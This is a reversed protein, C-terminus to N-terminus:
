SSMVFRKPVAVNLRHMFERPFKEFFRHVAEVNSIQLCLYFYWVAYILLCVFVHEKINGNWPVKEWLVGALPLYSSTSPSSHTHYPPTSQTGNVPPPFLSSLYITTCLPLSQWMTWTNCDLVVIGEEWFLHV